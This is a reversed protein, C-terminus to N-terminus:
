FTIPRCPRSPRWCWTCLATGPLRCGPAMCVPRLAPFRLIYADARRRPNLAQAQISESEGAVTRFAQALLAMSGFFELCHALIFLRAMRTGRHGRSESKKRFMRSRNEREAQRQLLRRGARRRLPEPLSAVSGLGGDRRLRGHM